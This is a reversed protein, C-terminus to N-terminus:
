NTDLKSKLHIKLIKHSIQCRFVNGAHWCWITLMLHHQESSLVFETTMRFQFNQSNGLSYDDLPVDTTEKPIDSDDDINIVELQRQPEVAKTSTSPLDCFIPKM